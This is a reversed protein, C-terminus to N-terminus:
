GLSIPEQIDTIAKCQQDPLWDPNAVCSQIPDSFSQHEYYWENLLITIRMVKSSDIYLFATSLRRKVSERTWRNLAEDTRQRM